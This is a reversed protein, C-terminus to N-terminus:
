HLKTVTLLLIYKLLLPSNSLGVATAKRELWKIHFSASNEAKMAAIQIIATSQQLQLSM